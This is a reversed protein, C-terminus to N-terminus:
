MCVQNESQQHLIKAELEKVEEDHKEREDEMALKTSELELELEKLKQHLKVSQDSWDQSQYEVSSQFEQDAGCTSENSVESTSSKMTEIDKQLQTIQQNLKDIEMNKKVLETQM